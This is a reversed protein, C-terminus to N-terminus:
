GPEALGAAPGASRYQGRRRPAFDSGPAQCSGVAVPVPCEPGAPGEDRLPPSTSVQGCTLRPLALVAWVDAVSGLRLASGGGARGLRPVCAPPSTVATRPAPPPGGPLCCGAAVLRVCGPPRAPCAVGLQRQTSPGQRCRGGAAWAWFYSPHCCSPPATASPLCPSVTLVAVAARGGRLRM